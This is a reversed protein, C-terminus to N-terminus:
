PRTLMRRRSEPLTPSNGVDFTSALTHVESIHDSLGEVSADIAAVARQSAASAQQLEDVATIVTHSQRAHQEGLRAMSEIETALSRSQEVVGELASKTLGVSARGSEVSETGKRMLDVTASTEKLVDDITNEIQRTAKGTREALKRVEDAVVAFGRGQEGARAAEIAANLALLNTQDAIEQIVRVVEGIKESSAGLSDVKSSAEVVLASVSELVAIITDGAERSHVVAKHVTRAGEAANSVAESTSQVTESMEDVAASVRALAATQNAFLGRIRDTESAIEAGVSRTREVASLVRLVLNRIDDVAANYANYLKRIEGERNTEVRETLSGAALRDVSDLLVKVDTQLEVRVREIEHQAQKQLALLEEAEERLTEAQEQAMAAEVKATEARRIEQMGDFCLKVLVIDEFVVWLAHEAIRLISVENLGFISFPFFLGRGLHDLVVVVTGTAVVRWDKYASLFALSAFIHFHTEIRGGSLHILLASYSMQAIAVAHITLTDAPARRIMMVPPITLLAGIGLAV